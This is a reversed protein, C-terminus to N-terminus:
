FGVVLFSVAPSHLWSCLPLGVAPVFGCDERQEGPKEKSCDLRSVKVKLWLGQATNSHPKWPGGSSHAEPAWAPSLASVGSPAMPIM